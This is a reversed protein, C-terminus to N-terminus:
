KRSSNSEKEDKKETALKNQFLLEIDYDLILQSFKVKEWKVCNRM